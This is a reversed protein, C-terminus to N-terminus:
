KGRASAALWDVWHQVCDIRLGKGGEYEPCSEGPPCSDECLVALEELSMSRVMDFNTENEM